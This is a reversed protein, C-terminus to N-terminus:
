VDGCGPRDDFPATAIDLPGGGNKAGPDPPPCALKRESRAALATALGLLAIAAIWAGFLWYLLKGPAPISMVPWNFLLLLIAFVFSAIGTRTRSDRM